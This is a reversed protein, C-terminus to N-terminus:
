APGSVVRQAQRRKHTIRRHCNACRVECKAIEAEITRWPWGVYAMRSVDLRKDRLHDFELVVTDSEGCDVCPHSALYDRIRARNAARTRASNRRIRTIERSRNRRYHAAKYEASCTRCWNQLEGSKRDRFTFDSSPRLLNCRSCHFMAAAGLLRPLRPPRERNRRERQYSRRCQKGSRLGGTRTPVITSNRIPSPRGVAAASKRARTCAAGRHSYFVLERVLTRDCGVPVRLGMQLTARTQRSNSDREPRPCWVIM